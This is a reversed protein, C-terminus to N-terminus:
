FISLLYKTSLLAYLQKFFFFFFNYYKFNSMCLVTAITQFYTQVHFTYNQKTLYTGIYTHMTIPLFLLSIQLTM